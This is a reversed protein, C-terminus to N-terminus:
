RSRGQTDIGPPELETWERWLVLLLTITVPGVFLGIAGFTALEGLIGLFVLLFPVRMTGSIVRRLDIIKGGQWRLDGDIMAPELVENWRDRRVAKVHFKRITHFRIRVLGM